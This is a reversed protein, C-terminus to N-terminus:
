TNARKKIEDYLPDWRLSVGCPSDSSIRTLLTELDIVRTSSM